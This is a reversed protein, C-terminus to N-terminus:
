IEGAAIRADWYAAREQVEPNREGACPLDRREQIEVVLAAIEKAEGRIIVEM